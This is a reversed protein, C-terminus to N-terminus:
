RSGKKPSGPTIKKRNLNEARMVAQLPTKITDDIFDFNGEYDEPFEDPCNYKVAEILQDRSWKMENWTPDTEKGSYSNPLPRIRQGANFSCIKSAVSADSSLVVIFLNLKGEILGYLEKIFNENIDEVGLSNLGDLILISPLKEKPRDLALLLAHIWGEVETAKLAYSLSQYYNSDLSQGTVMFGKVHENEDFEWFHELFARAGFTKGQGPPAYMVYIVGKDANYLECLATVIPSQVPVVARSKKQKFGTASDIISRTDMLDKVKDYVTGLGPSFAKKISEKTLEAIERGSSVLRFGTLLASLTVVEPM